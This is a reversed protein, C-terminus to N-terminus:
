FAMHVYLWNSNDNKITFSQSGGPDLVLCPEESKGSTNLLTSSTRALALLCSFFFHSRYIQFSSSFHDKTLSM